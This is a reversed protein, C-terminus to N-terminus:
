AREEALPQFFYTLYRRGQRDARGADGFAVEVPMDFALKDPDPEVGLLNGKLSGGGELDVIASVFPTAIGPYSRHVITFNYLKGRTSLEVPIMAGRAACRACTSREGTFVEGCEGCKSGMLLPRGDAARKLFPVMPRLDAEAADDTM